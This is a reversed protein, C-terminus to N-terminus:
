KRTSPYFSALLSFRTSYTIKPTTRVTTDTHPLLPAFNPCSPSILLSFIPSSTSTLVNPEGISHFRIQHNNPIQQDCRGNGQFMTNPCRSREPHMHTPHCSRKTPENPVCRNPSPISLVLYAITSANLSRDIRSLQTLTQSSSPM